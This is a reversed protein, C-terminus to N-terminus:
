HFMAIKLVHINLTTDSLQELRHPSHNFPKNYYVIDRDNVVEMMLSLSVDTTNVNTMLLSRITICKCVHM